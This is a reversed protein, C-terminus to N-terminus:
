RKGALCDKDNKACCDSNIGNCIGIASCKTRAPAPKEDTGCKKNQLFALHQVKKSCPGASCLDAASAGVSLGFPLIFLALVMLLRQCPHIM